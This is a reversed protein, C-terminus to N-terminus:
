GLVKEREDDSLVIVTGVIYRLVVSSANKNHPLNQWGGDENVLMIGGTPVKVMEIDGGIITQAEKFTCPDKVEIRGDAYYIKM